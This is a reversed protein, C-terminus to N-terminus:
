VNAAEKMAPFERIRLVEPWESPDGGKPDSLPLRRTSGDMYSRVANAGLQKVYPATGANLCVDVTSLAWSLNFPRAGPGSEGGVVIWSLLDLYPAFDVPGLAPEYSAWRIAAPIFRLVPLRKDAYEQNEVSVGLWV